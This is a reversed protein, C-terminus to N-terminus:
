FSGMCLNHLNKIKFGKKNYLKTLGSSDTFCMVNEINLSKIYTLAVDTVKNVAEYRKRLPVSPNTTTWAIQAVNAGALYVFTMALNQGNESVVFGSTLFGPSMAPHSHGKWWACLEPYDSTTYLSAQM